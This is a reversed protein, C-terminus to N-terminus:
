RRFLYAVLLGLVFSGIVFTMPQQQLVQQADGVTRRGQRYAQGSLKELEGRLEEISDALHDRMTTAQREVARTSMQM